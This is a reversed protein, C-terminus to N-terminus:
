KRGAAAKRAALADAFTKNHDAVAAVSAPASIVRGSFDPTEVSAAGLVAALEELKEVPMAVLQDETYHSQATKLTGVLNAHRAKEEVKARSVLARISDPATALWQDETLAAASAPAPAPTEVKAPESFSAAFESLRTETMAELGARDEEKFPSHACTILAGALDKVKQTVESM